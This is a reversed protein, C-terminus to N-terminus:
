PRIQTNVRLYLLIICLYYQTDIAEAIKVIKMFQLSFNGPIKPPSPHSKLTFVPMPLPNFHLLQAPLTLFLAVLHALEHLFREFVNSFIRFSIGKIQFNVFFQHM